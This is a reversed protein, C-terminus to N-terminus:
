SCWAQDQQCKGVYWMYMVKNKANLWKYETNAKDPKWHHAEYQTMNFYPFVRRCGRRNMHEQYAAKLSKKLELTLCPSCLQCKEPLCNNQCNKGSCWEPFVAIDRNSSVMAREDEGSNEFPSTVSRAIGVLSLLNFIVHEYLRTNASFHASSLNPSMNAEMLYVNLDEDLVFDFRMMEFFNRSSRYKKLINIFNHEKQLAVTAVTERMDMWMKEYDLGKSKLYMSFTEKFSFGLDTYYKMLSPMQWVPIYDDDVVYKKTDYPDFPHYNKTCFRYLAEDDVIYVRLPDISTIIAYIGIDFKRGDILLPKDIYQQVFSGTSGLDLENTKKIKVGRHTNKKQVWMKNPHRKTYALFKNTESPIKFAKPIFSTNTTALYVKNSIYGSGPFHNIKQHPKAISIKKSLSEFPYEHSWLVDWDSEADGVAYGIRDFVAYVHKLYGSHKNKGEIWVIPQKSAYKGEKAEMTPTLHAAYDERMKHLEYINLLTLLVGLTLVIIVVLWLPRSILGRTKPKKFPHDHEQLMATGSKRYYLDM